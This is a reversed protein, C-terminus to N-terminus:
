KKVGQFIFVNFKWSHMWYQWGRHLFRFLNYFKRRLCGGWVFSKNNLYICIFMCTHTITYLSIGKGELFFSILWFSNWSTNSPSFRQSQLKFHKSLWTSTLHKDRNLATRLFDSIQPKYIIYKRFILFM